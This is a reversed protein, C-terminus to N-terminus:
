DREKLQKIDKVFQEVEYEHNAIALLTEAAEELTNDSGLWQALEWKEINM